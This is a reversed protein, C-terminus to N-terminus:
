ENFYGHDCPCGCTGDGEECVDLGRQGQATCTPRCYTDWRDVHTRANSVWDKAALAQFFATADPSTGDLTTLLQQIWFVGSAAFDEAAQLDDVTDASM